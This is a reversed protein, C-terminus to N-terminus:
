VCCGVSNIEGSGAEHRGLPQTGKLTRYPIFGGVFPLHAPHLGLLYVVVNDVAECSSVCTSTDFVTMLVRTRSGASGPKRFRTVEVHHM